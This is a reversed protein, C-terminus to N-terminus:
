EDKKEEKKEEKKVNKKAKLKKKFPRSIWVGAADIQKTIAEQIIGTEEPEPEPTKYLQVVGATNLSQCLALTVPLLLIGVGGYIFNGALMAFLTLFPHMGVSNGVIKPEIIQRVISLIAWLIFLGIATGIEGLFICVIAWPALALGSGVVPLIDMAAILAAILASHKIGIISLGAWLECFTIFMILSYSLLYKKIVKGLHAFINHILDNTKDPLQRHVFARIAEYDVLLFITAVVTIVINLLFSPVSVAFSTLKTVLTGSFSMVTSGITSLLSNATEDFDIAMEPDLDHLMEQIANFFQDLFPRIQSQFFSPLDRVKDAALAVIEVLMWIVLVGITGYFLLVLIVSMIRTSLKLKNHFFRVLPRLLMTVLFAVVFPFLAPLAYRVAGVSLAFLLAFFAFNILFHKRKVTPSHESNQM